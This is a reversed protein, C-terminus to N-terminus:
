RGSTPSARSPCAAWTTRKRLANAETMDVDFFGVRTHTEDVLERGYWDDGRIATETPPAPEGYKRDAM